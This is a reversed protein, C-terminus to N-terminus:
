VCVSREFLGFAYDLIIQETESPMHALGRKATSARWEALASVEASRRAQYWEYWADPNVGHWRVENKKGVFPVSACGLVHFFFFVACCSVEEDWQTRPWALVWAMRDTVYM